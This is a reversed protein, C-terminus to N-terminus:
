PMCFLGGSQVDQSGIDEMDWPEELRLLFSESDYYWKLVQIADSLSQLVLYCDFSLWREEFFLILCHFAEVYVISYKQDRSIKNKM